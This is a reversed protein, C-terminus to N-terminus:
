GENLPVVLVDTKTNKILQKSYSFLKGWFDQHKGVILLDVELRESAKQIEEVVDGRLVILEGVNSKLEKKWNDFIAKREKDQYSLSVEVEIGMLGEYVKNLDVIVNVVHLTANLQSALLDAKELLTKSDDSFDLAVLINKYM